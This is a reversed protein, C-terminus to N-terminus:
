MGKIEWKSKQEIGYAASRLNASATVFDLTDIDDKDFSIMDEGGQLRQALRNTSEVFLALTESVDLIRQDKLKASSASDSGNSLTLKSTLSGSLSAATAPNRKGQKALSNFLGEVVKDYDLPTPKARSRWMDEMSLLNQIDANFVQV